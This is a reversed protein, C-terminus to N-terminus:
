LHVFVGNSATGSNQSYGDHDGLPWIIASALDEVTAITQRSASFVTFTSTQADLGVLRVGPVQRLLAAIAAEDAASWEFIVAQPSLMKIEYFAEALSDGLQRVWLRGQEKLSAAIGTVFLGKGCVGVVLRM